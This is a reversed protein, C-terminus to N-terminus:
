KCTLHSDCWAMVEPEGHSADWSMTQGTERVTASIRLTDAGWTNDDVLVLSATVYPSHQQAYPSLMGYRESCMMCPSNLPHYVIIDIHNCQPKPTASPTSSPTVSPTSSPTVSPTSSPTVSPTSSPTVSASATVKKTINATKTAANSATASASSAAQNSNTSSTCGAVLLSAVVLSLVIIATIPKHNM